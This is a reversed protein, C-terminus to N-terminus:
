REYRKGHTLCVRVFYQVFEEPVTTTIQSHVPDNTRLFSIGAALIQAAEMDANLVLLNGGPSFRKFRILKGTHFETLRMEWENLDLTRKFTVDCEFATVEDEHILGLLFPVFTFVLVGGDDTTVIKHIYRKDKPKKLDEVHLHMAGPVGLGSPHKELKVKRLIARKVRKDHLAPDHEGPSKGGLILKTSSATDVKQVTAGVAPAAVVCKHYTARAEISVKSM